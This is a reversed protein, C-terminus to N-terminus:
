NMIPRCCFGKSNILRCSRGEENCTSIQDCVAPNDCTCDPQCGRPIVTTPVPSPSPTPSPRQNLVEELLQTAYYSGVPGYDNVPKGKILAGEMLFGNNGRFGNSSTCNKYCGENPIHSWVSCTSDYTCNRNLNYTNSAGYPYEDLLSLLAHGMEHTLVALPGNFGDCINIVNRFVRAPCPVVASKAFEVEEETRKYVMVLVDSKYQNVLALLEDDSELRKCNMSATCRKDVGTKGQVATITIRDMYNKLVNNESLEKKFYEVYSYFENINDPDYNDSVFLIGINNPSQTGHIQKSTYTNFKTTNIEQQISDHIIMDLDISLTATKDSAEHPTIEIHDINPSYELEAFYLVDTQHDLAPTVNASNLITKSNIGTSANVGKSAIIGSYTNFSEQFMNADGEIRAESENDEVEVTTQFLPNSQSDYAVIDFDPSSTHAFEGFIFGKAAKIKSFILTDTALNYTFFISLKNKSGEPVSVAADMMGSQQLSNMQAFSRKDISTQSLTRSVYIMVGGILLFSLMFSIFIFKFSRNKEVTSNRTKIEENINLSDNNVSIDIGEQKDM